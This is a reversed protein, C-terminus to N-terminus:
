ESGGQPPSLAECFEECSCSTMVTKEFTGLIFHCFELSVSSPATPPPPTTSLLLSCCSLLDTEILGLSTWCLRGVFSALHNCSLCCHSGVVDAFSSLDDQMNVQSCRESPAQWVILTARPAVGKNREPLDKAGFAMHSGAPPGPM